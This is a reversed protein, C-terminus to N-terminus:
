KKGIKNIKNETSIKVQDNIKGLKKLLIKAADNTSTVVVHLNFNGTSKDKKFSFKLTM